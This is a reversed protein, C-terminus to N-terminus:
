KTEVPEMKVGGELSQEADAWLPNDIYYRRNGDFYYSKTYRPALSRFGSLALSGNPLKITGNLKVSNSNEIGNPTQQITISWESDISIDRNIGPIQIRPISQPPIVTDPVHIDFEPIDIRPIRIEPTEFPGFSMSDLHFNFHRGKLSSLMSDVRHLADSLGKLHFNISDAADSLIARPNSQQPTSCFAPQGFSLFIFLLLVM